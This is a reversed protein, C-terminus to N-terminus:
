YRLRVVTLVVAAVFALLHYLEAPADRRRALWLGLLMGLPPVLVQVDSVAVEAGLLAVLPTFLLAFYAFTTNKNGEISLLARNGGSAVVVLIGFGLVGAGVLDYPNAPLFNGFGFGGLQGDLFTQGDGSLYAVTGALLYAVVTGVLLQSINRFNVAAFISIGVIFAPLFLLYTPVLLSALGIWWGANFRAVSNERGKYTSGLSGLALLFFLHCVQVPDFAHFVPVMAWLLVLVLGPFQTSTAAFRYRDCVRNALIGALAVLVPPLLIVLWPSAQVAGALWGGTYTPTRAAEPPGLLILPVQLLLAYGFLLLSAFSQNTRFLSLM